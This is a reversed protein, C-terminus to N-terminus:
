VEFGLEALCEELTEELFPFGCSVDYVEVEDDKCILYAEDSSIKIDISMGLCTAVYLNDNHKKVTFGENELVSLDSIDFKIM